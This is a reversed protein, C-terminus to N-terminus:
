TGRGASVLAALGFAFLLWRIDNPAKGAIGKSIM